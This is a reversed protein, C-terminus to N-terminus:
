SPVHRIRSDYGRERVIGTAIRASFGPLTPVEKAPAIREELKEIQFRGNKQNQEV